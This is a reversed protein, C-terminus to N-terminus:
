PVSLLRPRRVGYFCTYSQLPGWQIDSTRTGPRSWTYVLGDQLLSESHQLGDSTPEDPTHLRCHPTKPPHWQHQERCMLFRFIWFIISAYVGFLKLMNKYKQGLPSGWCYVTQPYLSKLSKHLHMCTRGQSEFLLGGDM